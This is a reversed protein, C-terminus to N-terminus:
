PETQSNAAVLRPLREALWPPLSLEVTDVRWEGRLVRLELRRLRRLLFPLDFPDPKPM